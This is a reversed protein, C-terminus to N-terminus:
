VFSADKTYYGHSKKHVYGLSIWNSLYRKITTKPGYEYAQQTTFIGNLQELIEWGLINKETPQVNTKTIYDYTKFTNALMASVFEKAFDISNASLLFTDPLIQEEHELITYITAVRIGILGMRFICSDTEAPYIKSYDNFTSELFTNIDQRQEQSITVKKPRANAVFDLADIRRQLELIKDANINTTFADQWKRETALHYFLFRSFTGNEISTENFLGHLQNPTCTVAFSIHSDNIKICENNMKRSSSYPEGSFNTRLFPTFNGFKSSNSKTIIDLESEMILGSGGNAQADNILAAATTDGPLFFMKNPPPLTDKGESQAQLWEKRAEASLAVKKDEIKKFLRKTTTLNGKGGGSPAIGVLYLQLHQNLDRGYDFTVNDFESGFAVLSSLMLFEQYIQNDELAMIDRLIRPLKTKEFDFLPQPTTDMLASCIDEVEKQVKRADEAKQEATRTDGMSTISQGQQIVPLGDINNEKM